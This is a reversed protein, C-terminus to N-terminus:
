APAKSREKVLAHLNNKRFAATSDIEQVELSIALAKTNSVKEMHSCVADFIVKGLQKRTEENRGEGITVWIAVFSNDKHGDAITYVDRRQARTRVAAAEFIGTALAAEHVKGVLEQIAIEEELNASYEVLLHPM